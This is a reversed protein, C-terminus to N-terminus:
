QLPWCGAQRGHIMEHVMGLRVWLVNATAFAHMGMPAVVRQYAHSNLRTTSCRKYFAQILSVKQPLSMWLHASMDYVEQALSM